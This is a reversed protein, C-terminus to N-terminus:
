FSIGEGTQMEPYVIEVADLKIKASSGEALVGSSRALKGLNDVTTKFIKVYNDWQIFKYNDLNIPIVKDTYNTNIRDATWQVYDDDSKVALILGPLGGFKWPGEPIAIENTYYASYSRGRFKTKAAFCKQNLIIATDDTMTWQMCNLTDKVYCTKQNLIKTNYYITNEFYKKIFFYADMSVSSDSSKIKWYSISDNIILSGKSEANKGVTYEILINQGFMLNSYLLAAMMIVIKM